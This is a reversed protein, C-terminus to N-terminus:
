NEKVISYCNIRDRFYEFGKVKVKTLPMKFQDIGFNEGHISVETYYLLDNQKKAFSYGMHYKSVVGHQLEITKIRLSKAAAIM